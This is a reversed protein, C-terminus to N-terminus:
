LFRCILEVLVTGLRPRLATHVTMRLESKAAQYRWAFFDDLGFRALLVQILVTEDWVNVLEPSNWAEYVDTCINDVMDGWAAWPTTPNLERLGMVAELLDAKHEPNRQEVEWCRPVNLRRNLELAMDVVLSMCHNGVDGHRRTVGYHSWHKVTKAMWQRSALISNLHPLLDTALSLLQTRQHSNPNADLDCWRDSVANYYYKVKSAATMDILRRVGDADISFWVGDKLLLIWKQTADGEKLTYIWSRSMIVQRFACRSM